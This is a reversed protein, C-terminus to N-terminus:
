RGWQYLSMHDRIVDPCSAPIALRCDRGGAATEMPALMNADRRGMGRKSKDFESKRFASNTPYTVILGVIKKRKANGLDAKSPSLEYDGKMGAGDVIEPYEVIFGTTGSPGVHSHLISLDHAL